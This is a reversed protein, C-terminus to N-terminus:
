PRVESMPKTRYLEPDWSSAWTGGRCELCPILDGENLDSHATVFFKEKGLISELTYVFAQAEAFDRTYYHIHPQGTIENRIEM